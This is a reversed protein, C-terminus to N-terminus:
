APAAEDVEINVPDGDDIPFLISEVCIQFKRREGAEYGVLWSPEATEYFCVIGPAIRRRVGAPWQNIPGAPYPGHVIIGRVCIVAKPTLRERPSFGIFVRVGVGLQASM